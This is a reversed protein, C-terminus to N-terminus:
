RIWRKAPKAPTAPRPINPFLKVDEFREAFEARLREGQAAIAAAFISEGVEANTGGKSM